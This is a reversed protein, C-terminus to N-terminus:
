FRQIHYLTNIIFWMQSDFKMVTWFSLGQLGYEEVLGARTDFSRADKTWVIHLAEDIDMYYFYPSQAIEDFQIPIRNDAAIQVANNYSIVTAESIGPVYPLIWDYGLVTIGLLFKELPIISIMFDLFERLINVPFIANPFSYSRAWNYSSIIVGDVSGTLKSYDIREFSFNPTETKALPTITVMIKYGESHFIATARELAEAFSDINDLTINEIYINIGYFGKTKMLELANNILQEQISPNNLFNSTVEPNVFGEQNMASVFMIPSTGYSRALKILEIDEASSIIEGEETARYNFIMLYSLFPLVKILVSKDVFPFIYGSTSITRTKNTQYSIIIVEGHYLFRRDSLYPNNRLLEMPTTNHHAAISELTDGAQVAYVVDPQVIVITQGIALNDPNTIGNELILRDVPIKYYGSISKITEGPQVVHILM